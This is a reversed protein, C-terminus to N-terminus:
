KRLIAGWILPQTTMSQGRYQPRFGYLIAHGRGVTVDVLAAKGNLKTAASCGAPSCHIAAPRTRRSSRGGSADTIEFAPSDEFWAAPRAGDDAVGIPIPAISRRGVAALRPRLVRHQPCGGAREEGAARAGRDRIRQRRQVHDHHRGDRVFAQLSAAGADGLGGRLSDPYPAGLGRAAARRGPGPLHHVDFRAKLTQRRARGRGAVTRTRIRNVDFLWRTWGEDM